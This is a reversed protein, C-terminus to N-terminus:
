PTEIVVEHAGIGNMTDYMGEAGNRIEQDQVLAPFKNPVVRLCWNPAASTNEEKSRFIIEKPTKEENGPCFPCYVPKREPPIEIYDKPRKSRESAIIVWRGVVPDKRLEPM